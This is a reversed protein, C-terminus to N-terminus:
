GASTFLLLLDDLFQRGRASAYIRAPEQILWGNTLGEQLPAAIHSFPLGTRETFQKLTFGETLRLANLLFDLCIEDATLTTCQSIVAPTGVTEMYRQPDMQKSLRTITAPDTIKAHAGAGIGLYDGFQWYNLNHQCWQGPQAYASIEYHQYNETLLYNQGEVYMEWLLDDDPLIPADRYFPTGPEVTLQYWSLHPPRFYVAKKLDALAKEWTQEPLGFMLDLNFNQFDADIVAEIAMLAENQNHIRGIRQLAWDDFSQIGLSIRNVGAARFDRLRQQTVSGPNAELTIEVGTQVPVCDCIGNLLREIAPPSFLSPTGGGIFISTLPRKTVHGLDHELDTLLASIYASEPFPNKLPYSNFDCYPCKRLCWPIHM